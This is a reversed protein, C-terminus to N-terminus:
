GARKAKRAAIDAEIARLLRHGLVHVAQDLMEHSIPWLTDLLAEAYQRLVPPWGHDVFHTRAAEISLFVIGGCNDALNEAMDPIGMRMRKKALDRRNELTISIQRIAAKVEGPRWVHEIVQREILKHLGDPPVFTLGPLKGCIIEEAIKAPLPGAIVPPRHNEQGPGHYADPYREAVPSVFVDRRRTANILAPQPQPM